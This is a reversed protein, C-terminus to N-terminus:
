LTGDRKKALHADLWADLTARSVTGGERPIKAIVDWKFQQHLNYAREPVRSKDWCTVKRRGTLGREMFLVVLVNLALDAPGSGGYGWEYGTPSHEIVVCPVNTCPTGDPLRTCVLGEVLNPAM